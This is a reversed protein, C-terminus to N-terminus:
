AGDEVGKKAPGRPLPMWHTPEAAYCWDDDMHLGHGSIYDPEHWGGAWASTAITGGVIEDTSNDEDDLAHQPWYVLVETADNPATDIPQWGAFNALVLDLRDGIRCGEKSHPGDPHTPIGAEDLRRHVFDKFRQLANREAEIEAAKNVVAEVDM